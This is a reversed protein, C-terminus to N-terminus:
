DFTVNFGIRSNATGAVPNGLSHYRAILPIVATHNAIVVPHSRETFMHIAKDDDQNAVEIQVGTAGGADVNLRGTTTDLLPSSTDFGVRALKGDECGTDGSGGITISFGRDGATAGATALKGIPVGGLDVDKKALNQGPPKGEILCTSTTLSGTFNITGDLDAAGATFSTAGLTIAIALTITSIKM